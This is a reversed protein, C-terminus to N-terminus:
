VSRSQRGMMCYAVDEIITTKRSALWSVRTKVEDSDSGTNRLGPMFRILSFPKVSTIDSLLKAVRDDQKHNDKTDIYPTWDKKYFWVLELAILEQLTWGRTFWVSHKFSEEDTVDSLYVITVSSLRYM